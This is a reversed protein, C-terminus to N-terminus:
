PTTSEQTLICFVSQFIKFSTGIYHGIKQVSVWINHVPGAVEVDSHHILEQNEIGLPISVIQGVWGYM